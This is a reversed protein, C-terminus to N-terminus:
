YGLHKEFDAFTGIKYEDKVLEIYLNKRNDKERLSRRFDEETGLDYENFLEQYLKHINDNIITDCKNKIIGNLYDANEDSVCETCFSIFPSNKYEKTFDNIKIFRVMHEKSINNCHKDVHVKMGSRWIEVYLHERIKNSKCASLLCLILLFAIKKM